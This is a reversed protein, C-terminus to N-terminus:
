MGYKLHVHLARGGQGLQRIICGAITYYLIYVLCVLGGVQESGISGEEVFRGRVTHRGRGGYTGSPIIIMVYYM